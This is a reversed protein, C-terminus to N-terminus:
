KRIERDVPRHFFERGHESPNWELRVGRDPPLQERDEVGDVASPLFRAVPRHREVYKAISSPGLTHEFVCSDRCSHTAL